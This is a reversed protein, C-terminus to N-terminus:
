FERANRARLLEPTGIAVPGKLDRISIERVDSDIVQSAADEIAMRLRLRGPPVDFVARAGTEDRADAAGAAAAVPGEFIPTGDPGLATLVVRSPQAARTREGPVRPAPEWGCTVLTNGAASRAAGCWPRILPSSGGG